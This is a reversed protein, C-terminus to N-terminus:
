RSNKILEIIAIIGWHGVAHLDHLHLPIRSYPVAFPRSPNKAKDGIEDRRKHIGEETRIFRVM